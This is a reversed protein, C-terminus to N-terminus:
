RTCEPATGTRAKPGTRLYGHDMRRSRGRVGIKWGRRGGGPPRDRAQQHGVPPLDGPPDEAGGPLHPDAGHGDERLGVAIGEEDALGVLGQGEVAQGVPPRAGVEVGGGQDGRGAPRAGVADVGAVPEQGFVGPEGPAAGLRPQQVDTRGGLRDGGHAGLQLGLRHRRGGPDGDEGGLLDVAVRRALEFRRGLDQAPRDEDLRRGAAAPAAQPDYPLAVVEDRRHLGGPPLGGGGEAVPRDEELRPQLRGAVDLHLDEAVGGAPHHVEELPVAGELAAVLLDDLLRRGGAQGLGSRSCSWAAAM